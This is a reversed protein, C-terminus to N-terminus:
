LTKLWEEIEEKRSFTAKTFGTVKHDIRLRKHPGTFMRAVSGGPHHSIWSVDQGKYDGKIFFQPADGAGEYVIDVSDRDWTIFNFEEELHDLRKDSVRVTGSAKHKMCGQCM